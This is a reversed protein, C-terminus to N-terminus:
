FSAPLNKKFWEQQSRAPAEAIIKEHIKKRANNISKSILPHSIAEEEQLGLKRVLSAINEGGAYIFLPEDLSSYFIVEKVQHDTLWENEKQLLPHHEYFIFDSHQLQNGTVERAILIRDKMGPLLQCAEEYSEELWILLLCGPQRSLFHTIANQKASASVFVLDKIVPEKGKRGFFSFM